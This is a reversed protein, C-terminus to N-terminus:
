IQDAKEKPAPGRAPWAEVAHRAHGMALPQLPVRTVTLSVGLKDAMDALSEGLQHIYEASAEPSDMAAMLEIPRVLIKAMIM